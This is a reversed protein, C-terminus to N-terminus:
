GNFVFSKKSMAKANKVKCAEFKSVDVSLARSRPWAVAAAEQSHM